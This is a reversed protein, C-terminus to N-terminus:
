KLAEAAALRKEKLFIKRKEAIAEESTFQKICGQLAKYHSRCAWAVSVTRGASCDAFAKVVDDCQLLADKKAQKMMEDQERNSLAFQATPSSPSSAFSM